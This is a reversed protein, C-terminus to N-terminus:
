GVFRGRKMRGLIIRATYLGVIGIGGAAGAVLQAVSTRAKPFKRRHAGVQPLYHENVFRIPIGHRQFIEKVERHASPRPSWLHELYRKHVEIEADIVGDEYVRVHIQNHGLDKILGYEHGKHRWQFPTSRFGEAELATRVRELYARKARKGHLKWHSGAQESLSDRHLRKKAVLTKLRKKVSKQIGKELTAKRASRKKRSPRSAM